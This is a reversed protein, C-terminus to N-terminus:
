TPPTEPPLPINPLFKQRVRLKLKGSHSINRGREEYEDEKYFNKFVAGNQVVIADQRSQSKINNM